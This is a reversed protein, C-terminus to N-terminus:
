SAQMIWNNAFFDDDLYDDVLTHSTTHSWKLVTTTEISVHLFSTGLVRKEKLWQRLATASSAFTRVDDDIPDYEQTDSPHPLQTLADPEQHVLGVLYLVEFDFENM